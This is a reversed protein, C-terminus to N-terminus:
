EATVLEGAGRELKIGRTNEVQDRNQLQRLADLTAKVLNKPSTSGYAKSLIDTIGILQTVLGHQSPRPLNLISQAHSLSALLLLAGTALFALLMRKYM